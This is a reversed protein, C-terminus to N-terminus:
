RGNGRQYAWPTTVRVPVPVLAPKGSCPLNWPDPTRSSSGAAPARLRDMMRRLRYARLKM